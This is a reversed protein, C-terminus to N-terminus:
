KKGKLRDVEDSLRDVTKCYYQYDEIICYIGSIIGLIVFGVFIIAITAFIGCEFDSM